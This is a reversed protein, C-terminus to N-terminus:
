FGNDRDEGSREVLGDTCLQLTASPPLTANHSRRGPRAGSLELGLGLPLDIAVDLLRASGDATILV